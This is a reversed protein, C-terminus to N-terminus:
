NVFSWSPIFYKESKIDAFKAKIPESPVKIKNDAPPVKQKREYVEEWNIDKFWEHEKISEADNEFGLRKDPNQALLKKIM